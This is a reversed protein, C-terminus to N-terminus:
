IFDRYELRSLQDYTFQLYIFGNINAINSKQLDREYGDGRQHRGVTWKGGNLEIIMKKDPLYYDARFRRSTPMITSFMVEKMYRYRKLYREFELKLIEHRRM